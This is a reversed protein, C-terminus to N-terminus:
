KSPVPLPESSDLQIKFPPKCDARDLAWAVETAEEGDVDIPERSYRICGAVFGGVLVDDDGAAVHIFEGARRRGNPLILTFRSPDFVM